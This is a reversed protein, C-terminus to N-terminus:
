ATTASCATLSQFSYSKNNPVNKHASPFKDFNVILKTMDTRGDAHSLEAEVTRIKM